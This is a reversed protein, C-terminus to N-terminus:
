RPRNTGHSPNRYGSPSTELPAPSEHGGATGKRLHRLKTRNPHINSLLIRNPTEHNQTNKPKNRGGTLTRSGRRLSFRGHGPLLTQHLRTTKPDTQCVDTNQPNRLSQNTARELPIPNNEKNTRHPPTRNKLLQPCLIPLVRHIRPLSPRGQREKPTALRRNRKDKNPGNTSNRCKPHRRPIGSEKTRIPVERTQPLPRPTKTQNTGPPSTEQPNRPREPHPDPHRGHLNHALRGQTRRCLNCEDDNPLHSPLQHPRLVHSKTRLPRQQHHIGSEMPRTEQYPCQQIGM